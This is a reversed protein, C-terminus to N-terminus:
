DTIMNLANNKVTEKQNKIAEERAKINNLINVRTQLEANIEKNIASQKDSAVLINKM